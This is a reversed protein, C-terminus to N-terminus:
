MQSKCSPCSEVRLSERSQVSTFETLNVLVIQMLRFEGLGPYERVDNKLVFKANHAQTPTTGHHLALWLFNWDVRTRHNVVVLAREYSDIVDGSYRVRLGFLIELLSQFNM